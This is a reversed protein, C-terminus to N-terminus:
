TLKECLFKYFKSEVELITPSPKCLTSNEFLLLIQNEKLEYGPFEFAIANLYPLFSIILMRDIQINALVMGRDYKGMLYDAIAQKEVVNVTKGGIKLAVKENDGFFIKM